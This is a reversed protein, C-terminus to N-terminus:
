PGNYGPGPGRHYELIEIDDRDNFLKWYHWGCTYRRVASGAPDPVLVTCRAETSCGDMECPPPDDSM